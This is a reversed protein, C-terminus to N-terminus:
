AHKRDDQHYYQPESKTALGARELMEGLEDVFRPEKILFTKSYSGSRLEFYPEEVALSMDVTWGSGSKPCLRYARKAFEINEAFRQDDLKKESMEREMNDLKWAYMVGFDNKPRERAREKWSSYRSCLEGFMELSRNCREFIAVRERLSLLINSPMEINALTEHYARDEEKSNLFFRDIQDIRPGPGSQLDRLPRFSPNPISQNDKDKDLKKIYTASRLEVVRHFHPPPSPTQDSPSSPDSAKSKPPDPPTSKPPPESAQIQAPIQAPRQVVPRVQPLSLVKPNPEEYRGNEQEDDTYLIEVKKDPVKDEFGPRDGMPYRTYVQEFRGDPRRRKERSLYRTEAAQAVLRTIKDQGMVNRYHACIQDLRIQWTEPLSFLHLLLGKIEFSISPDQMFDLYMIKYYHRPKRHTKNVRNVNRVQSSLHM